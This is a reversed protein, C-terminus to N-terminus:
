NPFECPPSPKGPPFFYEPFLCICGLIRNCSKSNQQVERSYIIGFKKSNCFHKTCFQSTFLEKCAVKKGQNTQLQQQTTENFKVFYLHPKRPLIFRNIGLWTTLIPKKFVSLFVGDPNTFDCASGVGQSPCPLFGVGEETNNKFFFFNIIM